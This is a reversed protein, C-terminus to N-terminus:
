NNELLSITEQIGKGIFTSVMLDRRLSIYFIQKNM